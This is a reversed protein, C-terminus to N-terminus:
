GIYKERVPNIHMLALIKGLHDCVSILSKVFVDHGFLPSFVYLFPLGAAYFGVAAASILVGPLKAETSGLAMKGRLLARKLLVTMKWREPPVNEFVPAEKCWVFTRGEEIKRRFFDRDEGGSGFEPRFWDHGGKFLDAKLLANGTRTDQWDLVRGSAYSPRDFLRGRVVWRPPEKEYRPLVPGLIGDASSRSIARYLGLLWQPGPLEDDDILAFFDGEAHEIAMNRALAINQRPEVHYSISVHSQRAHAEVTSRASESGDNDVINISLDFLGLSVQRQLEAILRGLQGPRKYTCICVGIHNKHTM